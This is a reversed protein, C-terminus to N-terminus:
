FWYRLKQGNGDYLDGCAIFIVDIIWWIGIGGFTSAKLIGICIGSCNGRALFCRDVGCKGFFISLILAVLGSLQHYSCINPGTTLYGNQCVCKSGSITGYIDIDPECLGHEGCDSNTKCMYFSSTTLTANTPISYLDSPHYYYNPQLIGYGSCKYDLYLSIGFMSSMLIWGLYMQRIDLKRGCCNIQYKVQNKFRDCRKSMSDNTNNDYDHDNENENENISLYNFM